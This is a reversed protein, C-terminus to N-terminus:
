LFEFCSFAELMARVSNSQAFTSNKDLFVSKKCILRSMLFIFLFKTSFLIFFIPANPANYLTKNALTQLPFTNYLFRCNNWVKYSSSVFKYTMYSASLINSIKVATIGVYTPIINVLEIATSFKQVNPLLSPIFLFILFCRDNLSYQISPFWQLLLNIIPFFLQSVIDNTKM